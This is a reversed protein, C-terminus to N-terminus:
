GQSTPTIGTNFILQGNLILPGSDRLHHTTSGLILTGCLSVDKSEEKPWRSKGQSLILPVVRIHLTVQDAQPVEM